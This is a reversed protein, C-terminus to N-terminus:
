SYPIEFTRISGLCSGWPGGYSLEFSDGVWEAGVPYERLLDEIEDFNDKIYAVTIHPVENVIDWSLPDMWKSIKEKITRKLDILQFSQETDLFIYNKKPEVLYPKRTIIESPNMEQALNYLENLISTYNQENHVFGMYLTLHPAQFSKPSFDIGSKTIKQIEQNLRICYNSIDGRLPFHINIKTGKNGFNQNPQESLDKIFRERM